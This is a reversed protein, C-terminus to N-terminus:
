ILPVPSRSTKTTVNWETRYPILDEHDNVFNMFYEYEKTGHYSDIVEPKIQNYYYEFMAHMATGMKAAEAGNQKWLAKIEQKSKGYYKNNPWKPSNMMNDIVKDSNFKEFAGHVFTTVSTFGKERKVYYIHGMEQFKIHDDREHKNSTELLVQAM